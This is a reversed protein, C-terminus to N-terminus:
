LYLILYSDDTREENQGFSDKLCLGKYMKFASDNSSVVYLYIAKM